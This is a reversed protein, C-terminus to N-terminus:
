NHDGLSPLDKGSKVGDYEFFDPDDKVIYSYSDRLSTDKTTEADEIAKIAKRKKADDRAPYM